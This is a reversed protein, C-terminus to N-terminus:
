KALMEKVAASVMGSDAKGRVQPMLEAMVKGMDKVTAAGTKKVAEAVLIKVAEASLQEPLYKKLIAMEAEAQSVLDKRGGKEFLTLADRMKKMEGSVVDLIEEDNLEPKQFEGTEKSLKYQKDKEKNFIAASLLRLVSVVTDKKEMMATKLDQQIKAKLASM